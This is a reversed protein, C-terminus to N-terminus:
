VCIIYSNKKKAERGCMLGICMNYLFVCACVGVCGCVWVGVCASERVYIYIYICMCIIVACGSGRCYWGSSVVIRMMGRRLEGSGVESVRGEGGARWPSVRQFTM